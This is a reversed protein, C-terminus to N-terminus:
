RYKINWFTYKLYHYTAKLPNQFFEYRFKYFLYFIAMSFKHSSPQSNSLSNPSLRYLVEDKDLLNLKIGNKTVKFYFPGDEWMPIREDYFGMKEYLSRKAILAPTPLRPMKSVIKKFQHNASLNFFSYDIDLQRTLYNNESFDKIRTFLIEVEFNRNFYDVCDKCYSPLLIDDAAIIKIFEGTATKAARNCNITVGTNKEVKIIQSNVFRGKHNELWNTALEVTNDKSCDDSIILEITKYTQKDISDLTEIITESSNFAVVCISVLAEDRKIEDM